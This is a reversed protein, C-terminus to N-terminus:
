GSPGEEGVGHVVKFPVGSQGPHKRWAAGHTESQRESDYAPAAGDAPGDTSSTYLRVSELVFLRLVCMGTVLRM